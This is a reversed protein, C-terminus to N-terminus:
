LQERYPTIDEFFVGLGAAVLQDYLMVMIERMQPHAARATRQQLVIRWQRLNATTVINTALSNPLVSRAQEPKWGMNILENYTAEVDHMSRWWLFDSASLNDIVSDDLEGNGEDLKVWPPIVFSIGRKSYNVYRTSQISFSNHRHRTLEAMVGRDCILRVSISEHELISTHGREILSKIFPAASNEGIKGESAYCTRAAAEIRKMMAPADIPTLIEVSPKILYM